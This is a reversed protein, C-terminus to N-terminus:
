NKQLASRAQGVHHAVVAVSFAIIISEFMRTFDTLDEDREGANHLRNGFYRGAVSLREKMEV